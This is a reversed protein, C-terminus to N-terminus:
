SVPPGREGYPLAVVRVRPLDAGAPVLAVFRSRLSPPPLPRLAVGVADALRALLRAVLLAALAFPLQLALGFVFEPAVLTALGVGHHSGLRELTELLVFGLPPLLAFPWSPLRGARGSYAARIRLGIAVMACALFLAVLYPAYDFYGHGASEMAERRQHPDTIALRYGVQHGVFLGAVLIPATLLWIRRRGM